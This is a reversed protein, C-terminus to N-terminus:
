GTQIGALEVVVVVVAVAVVALVLSGLELHLVM